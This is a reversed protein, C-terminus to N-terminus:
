SPMFWRGCRRRTRTRSSCSWVSRRTRCITGLSPRPIGEADGTYRDPIPGGNEFARSTVEITEPCKRSLQPAQHRSGTGPRIPQLMFGLARALSSAM